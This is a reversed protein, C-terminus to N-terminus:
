IARFHKAIALAIGTASDHWAHAMMGPRLSRRILALACFLAGYVTIALIGGIGEYGHGAGFLLSSAIVGMLIGNGKGIASFQQLLYGRFVFEETIGATISLAVWLMLELAGHPALEVVAKQVSILHMLRLVTAVAALVLMAMLWFALAIGFDKMWERIGRRQEGLLQRMPVHRMRIGWWALAALVWEWIMTYLYRKAHSGGFGTTKSQLGSLVSVGLIVVAILATHWWPAIPVIPQRPAFPKGASATPIESTKEPIKM